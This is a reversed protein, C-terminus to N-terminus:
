DLAYVEIVPGVREAELLYRVFHAQITSPLGEHEFPLDSSETDRWPAFRAVRHGRSRLVDVLQTNGPVEREPPFLELLAYRAGIRELSADVQDAKPSIRRGRSSWGSARRRPQLPNARGQV